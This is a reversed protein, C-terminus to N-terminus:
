TVTNHHYILNVYHLQLYMANINTNIIYHLIIVIVKYIYSYKVRAKDIHMLINAFVVTMRTLVRHDDM